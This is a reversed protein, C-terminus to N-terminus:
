RRILRAVTELHYTQPFMDVLTLAELRYREHTLAKLDRAFTAPDCSVYVMEPAHIQNLLQVTEPDLGARPPDLVIFDPRSERQARNRELFKRTPSHVIQARTEALNQQLAFHSYPSWEVAVVQTFADALRHAFLGVGCYLDWATNGSYGQTVLRVFPDILHRNVQFFSGHEV